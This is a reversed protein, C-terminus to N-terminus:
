RSAAPDIIVVVRRNLPQGSPTNPAVPDTDGFGAAQLRGAAVNNALLWSLVAAARRQSLQLNGGPALVNDTYGDISATAGPYTVTLLHLLRRLQPLAAPALTYQGLGFLVSTLTDTVAGDLGQQVTLDLQSATAPTLIVTRSAGAQDLAAQWAAEEDSTGPFDDVVVTSGQLGVPVWPAYRAIASGIGIVAVTEPTGSGDGSQRLSSLDAAAEGLAASVDPAGAPQQSARAAAQAALGRGWSVLAAHKRDQLTQRARRLQAQYSHVAKRYRAQQFSTPHAPLATPPEPAQQAPQAPAASSALVAGGRDGLIIVREGARASEGVLTGTIQMAESSGQDTVIILVSSRAAPLTLPRATGARTVPVLGCGTVCVALVFAGAACQHRLVARLTNM